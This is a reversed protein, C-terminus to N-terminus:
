SMGKRMVHGMYAGAFKLTRDAVGQGKKVSMARQITKTYETDFTYLGKGLNEGGKVMTIQRAAMHLKHLAVCNKQHNASSTQVQDFIRAMEPQIDALSTSKGRPPM